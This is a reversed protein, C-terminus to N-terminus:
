GVLKPHGPRSCLHGCSLHGCSRISSPIPLHSLEHERIPHRLVVLNAVFGRPFRPLRPKGRHTVIQEVEALRGLGGLGDAAAAISRPKPAERDDAGVAGLFCKFDGAAARTDGGAASNLDASEDINGSWVSRFPCSTYSM